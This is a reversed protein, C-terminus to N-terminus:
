GQMCQELFSLFEDLEFPKYFFSINRRALELELDQVLSATIVIVPIHKLGEVVQLHDYLDLATMSPLYYDLLFLAPPMAKVEDLRQLLEIGGPFTWVHYPTESRILLELMEANSADDEVLLITKPCDAAGQM